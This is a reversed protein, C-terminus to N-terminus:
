VARELYIATTPEDSRTMLDRIAPSQHLRPGLGRIEHCAIPAAHGAHTEQARQHPVRSDAVANDYLTCQLRPPFRIHTLPALEVISLCLM